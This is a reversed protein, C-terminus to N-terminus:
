FNGIKRPPGSVNSICVIFLAASAAPIVAFEVPLILALVSSLLLIFILLPEGARM